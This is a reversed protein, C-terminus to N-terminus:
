ATQPPQTGPLAAAGLNRRRRVRKRAIGASQRVLSVLGGLVFFGLAAWVFGSATVPVAPEFDAWAGELVRPDPRSLVVVPRMLPPTTELRAQQVSLAEYRAFVREMSTGRDQLFPEASRGYTQLAAERTLQNRSADADFDAVVRLLEDVAGGLRQRYQQAFEPFQSAVLGGFAAAIVVILRGLARM